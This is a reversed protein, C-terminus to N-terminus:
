TWKETAECLQKLLAKTLHSILKPLFTYTAIL